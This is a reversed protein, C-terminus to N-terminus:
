ANAAENTISQYAAIYKEAMLRKDFGVSRQFAAKGLSQRKETDEILSCLADAIAQPEKPPVLLACTGDTGVVERLGAIDSAVVPLGANMAEVAALGFGEWLSPMLFIDAEQLYPGVDSVHGEFRVPTDMTAAKEELEARLEGDGIIRYECNQGSLLDIADLATPYNKAKRLRGVSVIKVRDTTNRKAYHDFKLHAGNLIVETKNRLAPYAATLSDKTGDSICYINEFRSYIMPDILNGIASGRRNNSTSHETFVLPCRIAGVRKLGSVYASTPFLHAHVVDPKITMEKLYKRLTLIAGPKYPSSFGLSVANKLEITECQGLAVLHADVGAALLDVHLDQVLREAGGSQYGFHNIVQLVRM